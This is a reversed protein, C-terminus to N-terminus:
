KARADKAVRGLVRAFFRVMTLDFKSTHGQVFPRVDNMKFTLTIPRSTAGPELDSADIYSTVDWVAGAGAAGNSAGIVDLSAVDSDLNIVRIKFPGQLTQRSTNELRVTIRVTQTARDYDSNMRQLTTLPTLDDLKSLDASGNKTATAEVRVATTWAQHWGTRNDIWYAHFVGNQDAALGAYDGPAYLHLPAFVLVRLPGGNFIPTGGGVTSMMTPWHERGDFRAPAESVVASPLFTDGGDLSVRLRQRWGLNDSADRRDLWTVAVVGAKNVAVTPLLHNPAVAPPSPRREDNVVVPASWSQGRDASYSFLTDTGGFRSDAWVVYLRDSFPGSTSDAAVTPVMGSQRAYHNPLHWGSVTVPDKLSDGGDDSIIVKLWADEPEPPPQFLTGVRANGDAGQWYGKLEGFVGVWRGDSLVVSNGMPFIYQRNLSAREAPRGFTRGGDASAYLQLTSRWFGSTSDMDAVGHVYVRNRFTGHTGDVIISERDLGGTVGAARWTRGHDESRLISLRIAAVSDAKMPIMTLYAIGDPGFACAPDGAPNDPTSEFTREWHAGGDQSAYAVIGQNIAEDRFMSCVLLRKADTPDAVILGEGHMASAKTLSIQVNPEITVVSPLVRTQAPPYLVAVAILTAVVQRGVGTM